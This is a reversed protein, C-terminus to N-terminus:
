RLSVFGGHYYMEYRVTGNQNVIIERGNFFKLEGNWSNHYTLGNETFYEKPGRIPLTPNIHQLAESLASYVEEKSANGVIRGFYVMTWCVSGLYTVTTMGGYPEGGYYVDQYSWDGREYRYINGGDFTEEPPLGMGYGHKLAERVFNKLEGNHRKVFDKGYIIM